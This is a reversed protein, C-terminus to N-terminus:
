NFIIELQKQLVGRFDSYVTSTCVCVFDGIKALKIKVCYDDDNHKFEKQV